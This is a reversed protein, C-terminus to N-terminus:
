EYVCVYVCEYVCECVCEYVCEYVCWLGWRVIGVESVGQGKGRVVRLSGEGKVSM